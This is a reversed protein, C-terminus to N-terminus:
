PDDQELLRELGSHENVFVSFRIDGDYRFKIELEIIRRCTLGCFRETMSKVGAVIIYEIVDQHTEEKGKGIWGDPDNKNWVVVTFGNRELWHYAESYVPGPGIESAAKTQLDFAAQKIRNCAKEEASEVCQRIVLYAVLCIVASVLLSKPSPRVITDKM